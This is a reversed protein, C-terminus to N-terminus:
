TQRAASREFAFVRDNSKDIILNFGQALMSRIVSTADEDGIVHPHIECCVVRVHGPLTVSLLEREAGEVDMMVFTPKHSALLEAFSLMPVKIRRANGRDMTSSSEFNDSVFFEVNGNELGVAGHVVAAKVGNAALLAQISALMAPNAEVTLLGHGKLRQSIFVSVIGAGAGIELVTDEPQLLARLAAIEPREHRGKYLRRRLRHIEPTAHMPVTVGHYNYKAPDRAVLMGYRAHRAMDRLADILFM